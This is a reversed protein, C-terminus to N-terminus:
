AQVDVFPVGLVRERLTLGFGPLGEQPQQFSRNRASPGNVHSVTVWSDFDVSHVRLRAPTSANVHAFTRHLLDFGSADEM